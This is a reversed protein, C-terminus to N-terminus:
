VAGYVQTPKVMSRSSPRLGSRFRKFRKRFDEYDAGRDKLDSQNSTAQTNQPTANTPTAGLTSQDAPKQFNPTLKPTDPTTPTVTETPRKARMADRARSAGASRGLVASVRLPSPPSFDRVTGSNVPTSPQPPAAPPPASQTPLISLPAAASSAPIFRRDPARDPTADSGLMLDPRPAVDVPRPDYASGSIGFRPKLPRTM